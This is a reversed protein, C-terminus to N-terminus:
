RRGTRSVDAASGVTATFSARASEAGAADKAVVTYEVASGAAGAALRYSSGSPEASTTTGSAQWEYSRSEQPADAVDLVVSTGPQYSGGSPASRRHAGVTRRRFADARRYHLWRRRRDSKRRPSPRDPRRPERYRRVHTVLRGNLRLTVLRSRDPPRRHPESVGSLDISLTPREDVVPHVGEAAPRSRHRRAPPRRLRHVRETGSCRTSRAPPTADAPYRGTPQWGHRTTARTTSSSRASAARRTSAPSCSRATRPSRHRRGGRRRRGPVDVAGASRHTRRRRALDLRRHGVHRAFILAIVAIGGLVPVVARAFPSRLREPSRVGPGPPAGPLTSPRRCSSGTHRPSPWEALCCTPAGPASSRPGASPRTVSLLGSRPDTRTGPCATSRGSRCGPSGPRRRGVGDVLGDGLGVRGAVRDDDLGLHLDAAAALGAADLEGVVGVLHARM